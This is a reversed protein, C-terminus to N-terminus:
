NFFIFMFKSMPYFHSEDKSKSELNKEMEIIKCGSPTFKQYYTAFINPNCFQLHLRICGSGNVEGIEHLHKTLSIRLLILFINYVKRMPFKNSQTLLLDSEILM